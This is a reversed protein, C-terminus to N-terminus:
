GFTKIAQEDSFSSALLIIFPLVACLAFITLVVYIIVQEIKEGKSLVHHSEM